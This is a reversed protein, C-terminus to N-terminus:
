ALAKLKSEVAALQERLRTAEEELEKKTAAVKEESEYPVILFRSFATLAEAGRVEEELLPMKM